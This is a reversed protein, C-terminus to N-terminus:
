CRIFVYLPITFAYVLKLTIREGNRVVNKACAFNANKQLELKVMDMIPDKVLFLGFLFSNIFMRCVVKERFKEWQEKKMYLCKQIERMLELIWKQTVLNILFMLYFQLKM